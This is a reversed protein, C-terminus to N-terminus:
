ALEHRTSQQVSGPLTHFAAFSGHLWEQHSYAACVAGASPDLPRASWVSHGGLSLTPEGPTRVSGDTYFDPLRGPADSCHTVLTHADPM